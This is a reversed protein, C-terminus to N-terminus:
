RPTEITHSSRFAAITADVERQIVANLRRLPGGDASLLRELRAHNAQAVQAFGPQAFVRRLEAQDASSVRMDERHRELEAILALRGANLEPPVQGELTAYMVVASLGYDAARTMRQALPSQQFALLADLQEDTVGALMGRGEDVSLAPTLSEVALASIEGSRGELERWEAAEANWQPGLAGDRGADELKRALAVHVLFPLLRDKLFPTAATQAAVYTELKATRAADDATAPL